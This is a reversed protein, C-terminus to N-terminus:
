GLTLRPLYGVTNIVSAQEIMRNYIDLIEALHNGPAGLEGGKQLLSLGAGSTAFAMAVPLPVGRRLLVPLLGSYVDGTGTPFKAEEPFDAIYDSIPMRVVPHEGIFDGKGTSYGISGESGLKIVCAPFGAKKFFELTEEPTEGKTGAIAEAEGRDMTLVDLCAALRGFFYTNLPANWNNKNLNRNVFALFRDFGRFKHSDALKWRGIPDFVTDLSTMAGNMKAKTFTGILDLGPVLFNGGIHVYDAKLDNETLTPLTLAYNAGIEQIFNRWPDKGQQERALTESTPYDRTKMLRSVDMGRDVFHQEYWDGLEDFGRFGIYTIHSNPDAQHAAQAATRAPGGPRLVAEDRVRQPLQARVTELDIGMKKLQSGMVLGEKPLGKIAPIIEEPRATCLTDICGHGIYRGTQKQRPFRFQLPSNQTASRITLGTLTYARTNM